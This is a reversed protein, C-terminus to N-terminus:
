VLGDNKSCFACLIIGGVLLLVVGMCDGCLNFFNLLEWM